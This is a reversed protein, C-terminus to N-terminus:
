IFCVPILKIKPEKIMKSNKIKPSHDYRVWLFHRLAMNKIFGINFLKISHNVRERFVPSLKGNKVGAGLVIGVDSSIEYYKKSFSYIRFSNIITLGLFLITM